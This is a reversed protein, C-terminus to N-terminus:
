RLKKKKPKGFLGGFMGDLFSFDTALKHTGFNPLEKDLISHHIIPHHTTTPPRKWGRTRAPQIVTWDM